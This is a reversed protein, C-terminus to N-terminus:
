DGSPVHEIFEHPVGFSHGSYFADSGTEALTGFGLWFNQHCDVETVVACHGVFSLMEQQETVPLDHILWDPLGLLRVRDGVRIDTM